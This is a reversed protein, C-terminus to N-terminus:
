NEIFRENKGHDDQCAHGKLPISANMVPFDRASTKEACRHPAAQM